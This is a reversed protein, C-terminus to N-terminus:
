KGVMRLGAVKGVLQLDSPTFNKGQDWILSAHSSGHSPAGVGVLLPDRMGEGFKRWLLLLM